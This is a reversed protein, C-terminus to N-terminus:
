RGGEGGNLVRLYPTFRSIQLRQNMQSPTFQAWTQESCLKGVWSGCRRLMLSPRNSTENPWIQVTLSALSTLNPVKEQDTPKHAKEKLQNKHLRVSCNSGATYDGQVKAAPPCNYDGTAIQGM